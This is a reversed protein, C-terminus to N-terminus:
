RFEKYKRAEFLGHKNCYYWIRSTLRTKFRAEAPGEPYLKVMEYGDSKLAVMFSIYHDKTMPHDMTVYYEDEVPEIHLAHEDDAPEPELPPLTIGCCSIVTEGTSNIVNGCIPCVYFKIKRMNFTKNTNKVDSGSMLEIVSIQLAEALSEVLTIDPYGKGTEWKSVTKDSVCLKAALDAQTMNREERLKKIIAGTIYQNM